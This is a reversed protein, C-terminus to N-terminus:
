KINSSDEQLESEEDFESNTTQIVKERKEKSMSLQSLYVNQKNKERTAPLRDSSIRSRIDEKRVLFTKSQVKLLKYLDKKITESTWSPEDVKICSKSANIDIYVLVEKSFLRYNEITKDANSKGKKNDCSHQM